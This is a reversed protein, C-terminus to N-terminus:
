FVHAMHKIRHLKNFGVYELKDSKLAERNHQRMAENAKDIAQRRFRTLEWEKLSLREADLKIDEDWKLRLALLPAEENKKHLLENFKRRAQIAKEKVATIYKERVATNELPAPSMSISKDLNWSNGKKKKAADSEKKTAM